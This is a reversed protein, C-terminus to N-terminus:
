KKDSAIKGKLVDGLEEPFFPRGDYKLVKLKIEIGTKERILGALQGTQNNEVVIVKRSKELIDEVFESPFPSLYTLQLFKAEVGEESLRRLASLIPGKTSGWGVVTDQAEKPGHLKPPPLEKALSELKRMRKDMMATRVGADDSSFGYETHEDSNANFIGGERSPFSRASVGSPTIEYRKFDKKKLLEERSLLLGRDVKVRSADLKEVATHGETLYKDILLMVPTQYKDAINFAEMTLYFCEEVDGPAIVIHPFDGQSASLLFKLDGQGTWTPLGTSPGPRQAEVIVLPTEVCAALGLGEVMLSFGGGSTAVIARVGAFSAGAAMNIVAIEDEAHKVVLNFKEEQSALYHLVGSAPTMPYAACFKCGAKIAGLSVAESGNLLLRKSSSIKKLKHKFDDPFNRRVYNFGARAVAINIKIVEEGKKKFTDELIEALTDLDYGVIALSAGLTVTNRMLKEGGAERALKALALPYLKIEQSSFEEPSLEIEEEDYLIAAGPTLTDKHREITDKNLAVLLDLSKELSFLEKGSVTVHYSNHGGRILSPYEVYDFVYFGSRSFIRSFVQGTVMIGYGAEGGIKWNLKNKAEM